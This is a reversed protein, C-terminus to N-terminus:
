ESGKGTKSASRSCSEPESHAYSDGIFEDLSSFLYTNLTRVQNERIQLEKVVKRGEKRGEKKCSTAIFRVRRQTQIM